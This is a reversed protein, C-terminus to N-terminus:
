DEAIDTIIFGRPVSYGFGILRNLGRTKGGVNALIEQPIDKLDFIRAM